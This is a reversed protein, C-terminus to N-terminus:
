LFVAPLDSHSGGVAASHEGCWGVRRQGVDRGDGAGLPVLVGGVVVEAWAHSCCGCIGSAHGRCHSLHHFGVVVRCFAGSCVAIHPVVLPKAEVIICGGELPIEHGIDVVAFLRFGLVIGNGCQHIGYANCAVHAVAGAAGTGLAYCSGHPKGPIEAIVAAEGVAAAVEVGQGYPAAHEVLFKGLAM